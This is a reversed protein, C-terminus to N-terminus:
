SPASPICPLETPKSKKDESLRNAVVLGTVGGGVIVYDYTDAEARSQLEQVDNSVAATLGLLAVVALSACSRM